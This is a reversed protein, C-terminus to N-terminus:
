DKLTINLPGYGNNNQVRHSFSLATHGPRPLWEMQHSALGASRFNTITHIHQLWTGLCSLLHLTRQMKYPDLLIYISNWSSRIKATDYNIELSSKHPYICVCEGPKREVLQHSMGPATVPVRRIWILHTLVVPLPPHAKCGCKQGRM